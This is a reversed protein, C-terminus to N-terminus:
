REEGAPTVASHVAPFQTWLNAPRQFLTHSPPKEPSRHMNVPTFTNTHYMYTLTHVLPQTFFFLTKMDYGSELGRGGLGRQSLHFNLGVM